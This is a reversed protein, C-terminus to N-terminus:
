RSTSTNSHILLERNRMTFGNLRLTSGKEFHIPQSRKIFGVMVGSSDGVCIKRRPKVVLPHVPQEPELEIVYCVCTTNITREGHTQLCEQVTILPEDDDDDDLAAYADHFSPALNRVPGVNRFDIPYDLDYGQAPQVDQFPIDHSANPNISRQFDQLTVVQQDEAVSQSRITGRGDSVERPQYVGLALSNPPTPRGSMEKPTHVPRDSGLASSPRQLHSGQHNSTNTPFADLVRNLPVYDDMKPSRLSVASLDQQSQMLM